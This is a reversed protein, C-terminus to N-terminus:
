EFIKTSRSNSRILKYMNHQMRRAIKVEPTNTRKLMDVKCINEALKEKRFKPGNKYYISQKMGGGTYETKKPTQMDESSMVICSGCLFVIAM